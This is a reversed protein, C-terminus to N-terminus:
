CYGVVVACSFHIYHEEEELSLLVGAEYGRLSGPQCHRLQM